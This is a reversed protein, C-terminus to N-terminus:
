SGAGALAPRAEGGGLRALHLPLYTAVSVAQQELLVFFILTQPLETQLRRRSQAPLIKPESSAVKPDELLASCPRFTGETGAEGCGSSPALRRGLVQESPVGALNM